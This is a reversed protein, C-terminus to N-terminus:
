SANLLAPCASTFGDDLWYASEHWENDWCLGRVFLGGYRSYITGWFFVAKKKWEEPILEVHALLYDLVNANCCHMNKLEKRLKNGEIHGYKGNKQLESLYLSVKEMGWEMQGGKCHEEVKWGRQFFPDADCDIFHIIQVIKSYGYLLKKIEALCKYQRLKTVDDPTFGAVDLADALQNMSGISHLSSM